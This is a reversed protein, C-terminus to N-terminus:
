NKETLGNYVAHAYAQPVRKELCIPIAKKPGQVTM